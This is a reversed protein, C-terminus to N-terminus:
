NLVVKKFVDKLNTQSLSWSEIMFTGLGKKFHRLIAPLRTEPEGFELICFDDQAKVIRCSKDEKRMFELFRNQSNRRIEDVVTFNKSSESKNSKIEM